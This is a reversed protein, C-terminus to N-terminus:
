LPNCVKVDMQYAVGDKFNQTIGKMDPHQELITAGFGRNLLPEATPPQQEMPEPTADIPPKPEDQRMQDPEGIPPGQFEEASEGIPPGQRAVDYFKGQPM